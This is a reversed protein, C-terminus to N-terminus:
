SSPPLNCNRWLLFFRRSSGFHPEITYSYCKKERSTGNCLSQSFVIFKQLWDALFWLLKFIRPRFHEKHLAVSSSVFVTSTTSSVVWLCVANLSHSSLSKTQETEKRGGSRLAGLREDDARGEGREEHGAGSESGRVGKIKRRNTKCLRQLHYSTKCVVFLGVKKLRTRSLAGKYTSLTTTTPPPPPPRRRSFYSCFLPPYLRVSCSATSPPSRSCLTSPLAGRYAGM